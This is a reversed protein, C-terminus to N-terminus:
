TSQPRLNWVPAMYHLSPFLLAQSGDDPGSHEDESKPPQLTRPKYSSYDLSGTNEKPAGM